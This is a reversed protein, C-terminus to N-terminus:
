PPVVYMGIVSYETSQTCCCAKEEEEEEEEEDDDDDDDDSIPLPPTPNRGPVPLTRMWRRLVTPAPPSLLRFQKDNWDLSSYRTRSRKHCALHARWTPSPKIGIRVVKKKGGEGAEVRM